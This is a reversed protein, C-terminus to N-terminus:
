RAPRAAHRRRQTPKPKNPSLRTRFTKLTGLAFTGPDTLPTVILRYRYLTGPKLGTITTSLAALGTGLQRAVTHHARRDGAAYYQFAWGSASSVPNAVGQLTASRSTVSTADGTVAVASAPVTSLMQDGGLMTSAPSSSNQSVVLQFHYTDGPTLGNIAASVGQSGAGVAETPTTHGYATTTGYEFYWTSNPDTANVTGYLVATATSVGAASGTQAVPGDARAVAAGVLACASLLMVLSSTVRKGM